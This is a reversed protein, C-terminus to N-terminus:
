GFALRREWRFLVRVGAYRELPVTCMCWGAKGASHYGDWVDAQRGLPIICMRWGAKGASHYGDWVDAQRGLSVICMRWGAKGASCYGYELKGEWRFLIWVGAQRGLLVTSM